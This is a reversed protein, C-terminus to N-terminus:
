NIANSTAQDVIAMRSFILYADGWENQAPWPESVTLTDYRSNGVLDAPIDLEVMTPETGSVRTSSGIQHGNWLFVFSQVTGWPAKDHVLLKLKHPSGSRGDISFIMRALRAEMYLMKENTDLRLGNQIYRTTEENGFDLLGSRITPATTEGRLEREIKGKTLIWTINGQKWSWLLDPATETLHISYKEWPYHFSRSTTIQVHISFIAMVIILMIGPLQTLLYQISFGALITGCLLIDSQLRPGNSWGGWWQSFASLILLSIVCYGALTYTAVPAKQRRYIGVCMGILIFVTWPSFIFLGRGPSILLAIGNTVITPISSEFGVGEVKSTYLGIWSGYTLKNLLLFCVFAVFSGAVFSMSRWKLILVAALLLLGSWIAFNPRCAAAWASFFGALLLNFHHLPTQAPVPERRIFLWNRSLALSLGQCMLAATQIWLSQSLIGFFPSAAMLLIASVFATSDDFLPRMVFWCSWVAIALMVSAVRKSLRGEDLVSRSYGAKHALWFFPAATLSTAIPYISVIRGDPLRTAWYGFSAEGGAYGPHSNLYPKHGQAMWSASAIIARSDSAIMHTRNSSFVLIALFVVIIGVFFNYKELAQDSRAKITDVYRNASVYHQKIAKPHIDTLQPPM